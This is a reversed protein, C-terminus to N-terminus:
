YVTTGFSKFFNKKDDDNNYMKTLETIETIKIRLLILMILLILMYCIM